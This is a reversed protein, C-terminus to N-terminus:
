PAAFPAALAAAPLPALEVATSEHLISDTSLVTDVGAAELM